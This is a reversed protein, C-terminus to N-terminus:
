VSVEGPDDAEVAFSRGYEVTDSHSTTEGDSARADEGREEWDTPCLQEYIRRFYVKLTRVGRLYGRDVGNPSAPPCLVGELNTAEATVCNAFDIIKLLIEPRKKEQKKNKEVETGNNLKEEIGPFPEESSQMEQPDVADYIIYLSSGYFRYGPLRRVMNELETLKKMATPIFRKAANHDVGDFFFATLVDQFEKGAKLDRGFYKDQWCFQQSQVDYTQMGCVRVGLEKSTTMACKRRQSTQKKDDADLGYQRTGMKLDLSCPNSMNATLDELLLFEETRRGAQLRAEKPNLPIADFEEDTVLEEKPMADSVHAAEEKHQCANTPDVQPLSDSHTSVKSQAQSVNSSPGDKDMPFMDNDDDAGYEHDYFKLGSREHSDVDQAQRRLGSGSHRRRVRNPVEQTSEIDTNPVSEYRRRMRDNDLAHSASRSLLSSEASQPEPANLTDASRFADSLMTESLRAEHASHITRQHNPLVSESMNLKRRDRGFIKSYERSSGRKRSRHIPPSAFVERMVQEKLKSNVITAGWSTNPAHEDKHDGGVSPAEKSWANKMIHKQPVKPWEHLGNVPAPSSPRSCNPFINGPIIHRNFDLHVEPLAMNHQSHSVVRPQEHAIEAQTRVHTSRNPSPSRAASLNPTEASTQVLESEDEEAKISGQWRKKEFTVNLVGIYRPLFRLLDPHFREVTEYFKNEKNNLRKCVAARSFRYLPTHGGVQHAFPKLRIARPPSLAQDSTDPESPLIQTKAESTESQWDKQSQFEFDQTVVSDVGGHLFQSEDESQIAVEVTKDGELGYNQSDKQTELVSPTDDGKGTLARFRIQSPSKARQPSRHKNLAQHPYYTASSIHEREIQPTTPHKSKRATQSVVEGEGRRENPQSAAGLMRNDHHQAELSASYSEEDEELISPVSGKAKIEESLADKAADRLRHVDHKPKHESEGDHESVNDLKSSSKISEVGKFVGFVQSAKRSRSNLHQDTRPLAVEIKKEIGNEEGGTGSENGVGMVRGGLVPKGERWSRYRLREGSQITSDDLTDFPRQVPTSPMELPSDNPSSLPPLAIIHDPLKGLQGHPKASPDQQRKLSSPHRTTAPKPTESRQDGYIYLDFPELATPSDDNNAQPPPPPPPPQMPKAILSTAM